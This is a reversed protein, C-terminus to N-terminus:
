FTIEDIRSFHPTHPRGWTRIPNPTNTHSLFEYFQIWHLPRIWKSPFIASVIWKSQCQTHTRRAGNVGYSVCEIATDMAVIVFSIISWTEAAMCELPWGYWACNRPWDVQRARRVQQTARRRVSGNKEKRDLSSADIAVICKANLIHMRHSQMSEDPAATSKLQCVRNVTAYHIRISRISM